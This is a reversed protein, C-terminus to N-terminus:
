PASKRADLLVHHALWWVALLKQERVCDGGANQKRNFQCIDCPEVLVVGERDRVGAEHTEHADRCLDFVARAHKACPVSKTCVRGKPVCAWEHEAPPQESPFPGRMLGMSLRGM